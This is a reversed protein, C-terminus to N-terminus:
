SVGSLRNHRSGKLLLVSAKHIQGPLGKHIRYAGNAISRSEVCKENKVGSIKTCENNWAAWYIPQLTICRTVTHEKFHEMLRDMQRRASQKTQEAKGPGCLQGTVASRAHTEWDARNLQRPTEILPQEKEPQEREMDRGHVILCREESAM